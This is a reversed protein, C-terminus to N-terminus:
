RPISKSWVPRESFFVDVFVPMWLSLVELSSILSQYRISFIWPSDRLFLRVKKVLLNAAVSPLAGFVGAHLHIFLMVGRLVCSVLSTLVDLHRSPACLTATFSLFFCCISSTVRFCTSGTVPKMHYSWVRATRLFSPMATTQSLLIVM